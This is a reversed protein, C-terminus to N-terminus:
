PVIRKLKSPVMQQLTGCSKMYCSGVRDYQKLQCIAGISLRQLYHMYFSFVSIVGAISIKSIFDPVLVHM